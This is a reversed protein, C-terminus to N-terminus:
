DLEDLWNGRSLLLQLDMSDWDWRSQCMGKRGRKRGKAKERGKAGIVSKEEEKGEEWEGWGAEACAACRKVRLVDKEKFVRKIERVVYIEVGRGLKKQARNWEDRQQSTTGGLVIRDVSRAVAARAEAIVDDRSSPALQMAHQASSVRSLFQMRSLLRFKQLHHACLPTSAAPTLLLWHPSLSPPENQINTSLSLAGPPLPTPLPTLRASTSPSPPAKLRSKPNKIKRPQVLPRLDQNSATVALEEETCSTSTSAVPVTASASAAADDNSSPKSFYEAAKILVDFLYTTPTAPAPTERSPQSFVEETTITVFGTYQLKM